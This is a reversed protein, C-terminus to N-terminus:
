RVFLWVDTMESLLWRKRIADANIFRMKRGGTAQIARGFHARDALSYGAKVFTSLLAAGAQFREGTGTDLYASAVIVCCRGGAAQSASCARAVDGLMALWEGPGRANAIDDASPGYAGRVIGFYPVDMVILDPRVPLLRRADHRVIRRTGRPRLDFLRLDLDLSEDEPLWEARRDYVHRIMGSGAMVDAVLEGDRAWQWLVNCYVDGPLYGYGDGGDIRGYRPPNFVWLDSPRLVFRERVERAELARLVGAVTMLRLDGEKLPRGNAQRCIVEHVKGVVRELQGNASALRRAQDERRGAVGLRRLMKTFSEGRPLRKSKGRGPSASKIWRGLNAEALVYTEAAQLRLECAAGSEALLKQVSRAKAAVRSADDISACLAIEGRIQAVLVLAQNIKALATM